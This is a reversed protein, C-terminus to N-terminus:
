EAVVVGDSSSRVCRRSERIANTYMLDTYGVLVTMEARM